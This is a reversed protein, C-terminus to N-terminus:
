CFTSYLLHFEYCFSHFNLGVIKRCRIYLLQLNRCFALSDCFMALYSSDIRIDRILVFIGVKDGYIENVITWSKM